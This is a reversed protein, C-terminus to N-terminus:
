AEQRATRTGGRMTAFKAATTVTIQRRAPRRLVFAILAGLLALGGVFLLAMTLDGLWRLVAAVRPGGSALVLMVFGTVMINVISAPLLRRWTLKMLQDYRFRPLTWRIALTLVCLGITKTVFAILGLVIVFWHPLAASFYTVDGLAITIGHRDVFPLHWGGLFLATMLASAAVIAVYESFFFMAFKMGSYETFYGAVLESEGEPLDFPTRKSEAIAAAMFLVFALPQVFIGWANETQWRVMAEIRLTGYIMFAGILSLGLTVEYSIMQSAARLGGLLSFKNDSAWGALASGVVGTGALAFFFLIGVDLNAVQLPVAGMTCIGEPPVYPVPQLLLPEGAEGAAFCLTDGFPVVALLVLVPFFAIVPAMSHLLRDANPPIIDEKFLSKLGDAMPHLLGALRLGVRPEHRLSLAAYLGGGAIAFALLGAGSRYGIERLTQGLATGRYAGALTLTVVHAAIGALVITRAGGARVALWHMFQDFSGRVGRRGVVAIMAVATVWIFLIALQSVLVARGTREAGTVDSTAAFYVVALAVIFAPLALGLQAVKRPLWIVARNPGVRDQMMAGQRRDAWTLSVALGMVFAVLAVAKVLHIIIEVASM